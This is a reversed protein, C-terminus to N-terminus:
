DTYDAYNASLYKKRNQDIQQRGDSELKLFWKVLWGNVFLSNLRHEDADENTAITYNYTATTATTWIGNFWDVM